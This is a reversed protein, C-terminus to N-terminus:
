RSRRPSTSRPAAAWASSRTPTTRTSRPPAAMVQSRVPNGWIDSFVAVDLDPLDALFAPLLPLAAIGRDTVILPRAIQQEHLHSAVLKRAGAGFHITTPFSFRDISM